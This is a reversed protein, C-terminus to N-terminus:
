LPDDQSKIAPCSESAFTIIKPKISFISKVGISAPEKLSPPHLCCGPQDIYL